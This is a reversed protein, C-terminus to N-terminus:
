RFVFSGSASDYLIPPARDRGRAARAATGAGPSVSVAAAFALQLRVVQHSLLYPAAAPTPTLEVPGHVNVELELNQLFFVPM